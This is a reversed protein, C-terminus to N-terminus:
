HSNLKIFRCKRARQVLITISSNLVHKFRDLNPSFIWSKVSILLAHWWFISPLITIKTLENLPERLILAKSRTVVLWLLRRSWGDICSHVHFGYPKLKDCGDAHWVANPGPNYYPSRKLRHEKRQQCGVPDLTYPAQEKAHNLDSRQQFFLSYVTHLASTGERPM